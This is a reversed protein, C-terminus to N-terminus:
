RYLRRIFCFLFDHSVQSSPLTNLLFTGGTSHPVYEQQCQRSQHFSTHTSRQPNCLILQNSQSNSHCPPPTIKLSRSSCHKEPLVPSPYYSPRASSTPPTDQISTHTSAQPPVASTRTLSIPPCTIM